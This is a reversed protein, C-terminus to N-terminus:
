SNIWKNSLRKEEQFSDPLTGLAHWPTCIKEWLFESVTCYIWIYELVYLLIYVTKENPVAGAIRSTIKSVSTGQERKM